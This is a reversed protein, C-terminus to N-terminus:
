TYLFLLLVAPNQFFQISFKYKSIYVLQIRLERGNDSVSFRSGDSIDVEASLGLTWKYQPSPDGAICNFSNYSM